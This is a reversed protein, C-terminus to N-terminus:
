EALLLIVDSVRWDGNGPNLAFGSIPKNLWLILLDEKDTAPLQLSVPNRDTIASASQWNLEFWVYPDTQVGRYQYRLQVAYVHRPKDLVYRCPDASVPKLTMFRFPPDHRLWQFPGMQMAGLMELERAFQKKRYTLGILYPARSYQNALVLPPVGAKIDSEFQAFTQRLSRAYDLGDNMNPWLQIAALGFIVAQGLPAWRNSSYLLIVFYIACPGLAALTIYRRGMGATPGYAARGYGVALALCVFGALFCALGLARVRESSQRATVGFLLLMALALGVAVGWGWV